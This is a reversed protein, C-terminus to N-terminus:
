RRVSAARPEDRCRVCPYGCWDFRVPQGKADTWIKVPRAMEGFLTELVACQEDTLDM